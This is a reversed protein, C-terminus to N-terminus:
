VSLERSFDLSHTRVGRFPRSVFLSFFVCPLHTINSELFGVFAKKQEMAKHLQDFRRLTEFKDPDVWEDDRLIRRLPIDPIDIRYNLDGLWFLVDSEFVSTTEIAEGEEEEEDVEEDSIEETENVAERSSNSPGSGEFNPDLQPQPQAHRTPANFRLRRTLERYDANRKDVMEDFEALHANVFALITPKMRRRKRTGDHKHPPPYYSVRIASAGKNGMVGMVGTGASICQVDGFYLRSQKKVLIVILMGVLQRLVLSAKFSVKEWEEGTEGLGAICAMVWADEKATGTNYILAETSIDFEQFGLVLMTPATSGQDIPLGERGESQGKGEPAADFPNVEEDRVGASTIEGISLPSVTAIQPLGTTATQTQSNTGLTVGGQVWSSLDQSPNKGNVNFTGIRIRLKQSTSESGELAVKRAERRVWDDRMVELDSQERGENGAPGTIGGGASTKSLRENMPLNALRLDPPIRSRLVFPIERNMHLVYPRLWSFHTAGATMVASTSVLSIGPYSSPDIHSGAEEKLRKCEKVFERLEEQVDRIYFLEPKAKTDGGDHNLTGAQSSLGEGPTITLSFGAAGVGLDVSGSGSHLARMDITSRRQMQSMVIAFAGYIPLVRHLELEDEASVTRAGASASKPQFIFVCGEETLDWDDKHSVVALVRRHKPGEDIGRGSPSASPPVWSAELVVRLEEMSRLFPQIRSTWNIQRTQGTESM